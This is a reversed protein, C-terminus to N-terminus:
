SNRINPSTQTISARENRIANSRSEVAVFSRHWLVLLEMHSTKTACKFRRKHPVAARRAPLVKERKRDCRWKRAPRTSSKGTSSRSDHVYANCDNVALGGYGLGARRGISSCVKRYKRRKHVLRLNLLSTPRRRQGHRQAM